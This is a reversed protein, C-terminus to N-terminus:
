AGGAVRAVVAEANEVAVGLRLAILKGRAFPFRELKVLDKETTVVLDVAKAAQTIAHWTRTDYRHHDPYELVQVLDAGWEHLAHYLPAPRAVGSVALVRQGALAALSLEEWGGGAPTVLAVPALRLRAALQDPRLRARVRGRGEEERERLLVVHARALAGLPERLPGAPLLRALGGREDADVLVLDLDRRLRRHQFADDCLLLESGFTEIAFRAAAVRDRGAVVPVGSTRALMVAEDGSREVDSAVASGDGVAHPAAAAGGYGRSVIAVASGRAALAAALWRVVPTKGTGGVRLNGISVVRAPVGRARLVGLRYAAGRAAAATGYLAAAPALLARALRWGPTRGEWVRAALNAGRASV